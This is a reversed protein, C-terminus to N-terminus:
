KIPATAEKLWDLEEGEFYSATKEFVAKHYANIRDIDEKTLYKTDILDKDLPTFTLHEFKM